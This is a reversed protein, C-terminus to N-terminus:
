HVAQMRINKKEAPRDKSHWNKKTMAAEEATESSQELFHLDGADGTLCIYANESKLERDSTVM